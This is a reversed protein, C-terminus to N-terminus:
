ASVSNTPIYPLHLGSSLKIIQGTVTKTMELYHISQLVEQTHSLRNLPSSAKVKELTHEKEMDGSLTAGLAIGNIRIHPALSAAQLTIFSEIMKRSLSYSLFHPSISWGDMGDLLFIIHGQANKLQKQFAQVMLISAVSNIQIHRTISEFTVNNLNDKEFLSANFILTTVPPITSDFLRDFSQVEAFDSQVVRCQTGYTMIDKQTHHAADYSHCYHLSIHDCGKKAYNVAIDRGIRRAGGTIFLHCDNM